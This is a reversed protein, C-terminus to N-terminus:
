LRVSPAYCCSRATLFGALVVHTARRLGLHRPQRFRWGRFPRTKQPLDPAASRFDAKGLSSRQPGGLPDPPLQRCTTAPARLWRFRSRDGQARDRARAAPRHKGDELRANECVRDGVAWCTRSKFPAPLPPDFILSHAENTIGIEPRHGALSSRCSSFVGSGGSM